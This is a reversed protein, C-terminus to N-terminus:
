EELYNIAYAPVEYAEMQGTTTNKRYAPMKSNKLVALLDVHVRVPTNQQLDMAKKGSSVFLSCDREASNLATISVLKKNNNKSM